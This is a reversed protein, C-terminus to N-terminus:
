MYIYIYLFAYKDFLTNFLARYITIINGGIGRPHGGQPSYTTGGKPHIAEAPHKRLACMYQLFFEPEADELGKAILEPRSLYQVDIANHDAAGWPPVGPSYPPLIM